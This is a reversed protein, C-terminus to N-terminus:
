KRRIRRFGYVGAGSILALSGLVLSGPEPVAAPEIISGMIASGNGGISATATVSGFSDTGKANTAVLLVYSTTGPTLPAGLPGPVDFNFTITSGDPTKSASYSGQTGTVFGGGSVASGDTLYDVSTLYGAYNTVNLGDINITGTNQVQYLFDYTGGSLLISDVTVTAVVPGGSINYSNTTVVSYGTGLDASTGPTMVVESGGITTPLPTLTAFAPNTALIGAGVALMMGLM